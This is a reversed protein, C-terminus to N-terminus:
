LMVSCCPSEMMYFGYIFTDVVVYVEHWAAECSRALCGKRTSCQGGFVAIFLGM